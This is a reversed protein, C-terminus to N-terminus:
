NRSGAELERSIQDFKANAQQGILQVAALTGTILGIDISTTSQFGDNIPQLVFGVKDQGKLEESAQKGMTGLGGPLNFWPIARFEASFISDTETSQGDVAESRSICRKLAKHAVNGRAFYVVDDGFGVVVDSRKPMGFSEHFFEDNPSTFQHFVIDNHQDINKEISFEKDSKSLQEVIDKEFVRKLKTSDGVYCGVALNPQGKYFFFNVGVDVQGTEMAQDFIELIQQTLADDEVVEQKTPDDMYKLLSKKLGREADYLKVIEQKMHSLSETSTNSCYNLSFGTNMNRKFGAFRSPKNEMEKAANQSFTSGDVFTLQTNAVIQSTSQDIKLGVSFQEADAAFESWQELTKQLHDSGAGDSFGAWFADRHKQAFWQFNFDAFIM